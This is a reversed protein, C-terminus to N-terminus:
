KKVFSSRKKRKCDCFLQKFAAGFQKNMIGYIIPNCCSNFYGVMLTFVHFSRPVGEVHLISLMMSICYPFWCIFFIVLVVILSATLRIEQAEKRRKQLKSVFLKADQKTMTQAWDTPEGHSVTEPCDKKTDDRNLTSVRSVNQDNEHKILRLFAQINAHLKKKCKVYKKQDITTGDSVNHDQNIHMNVSHIDFSELKIDFDKQAQNLAQLPTTTSVPIQPVVKMRSSRVRRSILINCLAMVTFPVGFCAGIMFFAYAKDKTWDCFCFHQMPIYSYEAWGYLPPSSLLASVSIGVLDPSVARVSIACHFLFSSVM